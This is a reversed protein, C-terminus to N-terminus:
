GEKARQPVAAKKGLEADKETDPKLKPEVAPVKKHDPAPGPQPTMLDATIAMATQMRVDMPEESFGMERLKAIAEPDDTSCKGDVFEYWSTNYKPNWLVAPSKHGRQRYFTAM